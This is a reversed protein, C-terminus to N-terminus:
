KNKNKNWFLLREWSNKPKSDPQTDKLFDDIMIVDRLDQNRKALVKVERLDNIHLLRITHEQIQQVRSRQYCEDFDFKKHIVTLVDIPGVLTFVQPETFNQREIEAIENETYDIALLTKLFRLKNDNSPRIWIDADKTHRLIGHLNLAMGGIIMFKLDNKNASEVFRLFESDELDM